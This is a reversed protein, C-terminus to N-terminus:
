KLRILKMTTLLILHLLKEPIRRFQPYKVTCFLRNLCIWGDLRWNLEPNYPLACETWERSALGRCCLDSDCFSEPVFPLPGDLRTRRRSIRCWNRIGCPPWRLKSFFLSASCSSTGTPYIRRLSTLKTSPITQFKFSNRKWITRRANTYFKISPVSSEM